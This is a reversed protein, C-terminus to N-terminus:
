SSFVHGNDSIWFDCEWAVTDVEIRFGPPCSALEPYASEAYDWAFDEISKHCGHYRDQFTRLAYDLQDTGGVHALYDGFAERNDEEIECLKEHTDWVTDLSVYDWFDIGFDSERDGLILEEANNTAEAVKARFDDFDECEDLDVWGGVLRGGVYAALNWFHIKITSTGTLSSLLM